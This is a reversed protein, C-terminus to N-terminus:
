TRKKGKPTTTLSVSPEKKPNFTDGTSKEKAEEEDLDLKDTIM